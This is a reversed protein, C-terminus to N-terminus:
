VEHELIHNGCAEKFQLESDLAVFALFKVRAFYSPFLTPNLLLRKLELVIFELRVEVERENTDRVLCVFSQAATCIHRM